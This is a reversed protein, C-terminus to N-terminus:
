KVKGASQDVHIIQMKDNDMKETMNSPRSAWDAFEMSVAVRRQPNKEGPTNVYPGPFNGNTNSAM